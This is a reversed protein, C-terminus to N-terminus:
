ILRASDLDWIWSQGKHNETAFASSVQAAELARKWALRSADARQKPTGGAPVYRRMFESEVQELMVAPVSPGSGGVSRRKAPDCVFQYAEVFKKDGIGGKRSKVVTAAKDSRQLSCSYIAEGFRNEGLRIPVLDLACIPGEEGIRSKLINMSRATVQGSAGDRDALMSISHDVNARWASAGRLGQDTNKGFHHVPIIVVDLQEAMWALAKCVYAAESNDNENEISFASTITDIAIAGVRVGHRKQMISCIARLDNVFGEISAPDKLDPIRGLVGIPIQDKIGAHRRAAELRAPLTQAGEAACIIVGCRERVPFGLFDTKTALAIAMSILAFTKGAGSQGGIMTVGDRPLIRKILEEPESGPDYAGDSFGLDRKVEELTRQKPFHRLCFADIVGMKSPVDRFAYLFHAAIRPAELLGAHHLDYLKNKWERELVQEFRDPNTKKLLKIITDLTREAASEVEPEPVNQATGTNNRDRPHAIADNLM